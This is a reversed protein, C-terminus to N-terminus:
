LKGRLEAMEASTIYFLKVKAGLDDRGIRELTGTTDVALLAGPPLRGDAYEEILEFGLVIKLGDLLVDGHKDSITMSWYEGRTNWIFSLRFPEGELVVSESYAPYEFVPIIIM